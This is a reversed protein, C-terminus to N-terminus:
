FRFSQVATRPHLMLLIVSPRTRWAESYVAKTHLKSKLPFLTNPKIVNRHEYTITFGINKKKSHQNKLKVLTKIM